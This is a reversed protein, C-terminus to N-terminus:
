YGEEMVEESEDHISVTIGKCWVKKKNVEKKISARAVNRIPPYERDHIM